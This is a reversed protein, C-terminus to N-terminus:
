FASGELKLLSRVSHTVGSWLADYLEQVFRLRLDILSTLELPPQHWTGDSTVWYPTVSAADDLGGVVAVLCAHWGPRTEVGPCVALWQSTGPVGRCWSRDAFGSLSIGSEWLPFKTVLGDLDEFWYARALDIVLPAGAGDGALGETARRRKIKLDEALVLDGLERVLVQIAEPALEVLRSVQGLVRTQSSHSVGLSAWTAFHECNRAVVSYDEDGTASLARLSAVSGLLNGAPRGRISLVEAVGLQNEDRGRLFSSVSTRRVKAPRDDTPEGDFHVVTGDGLFLGHHDFAVGQHGVAGASLGPRTLHLGAGELLVPDRPSGLAGVVAPHDHRVPPDVQPGLAKTLCDPSPSVVAHVASGGISFDAQTDLFGELLDGRLDVGLAEALAGIEGGAEGALRGGEHVAALAPNVRSAWAKQELWAENSSAAEYEKFHRLMEPAVEISDRLRKTAISEEAAAFRRERDLDLGKLAGASLKLRWPVVETTLKSGAAM